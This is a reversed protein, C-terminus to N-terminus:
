RVSTRKTVTVLNRALSVPKYVQVGDRSTPTNHQLVTPYDFCRVSVSIFFIGVRMEFVAASICTSASSSHFAPLM